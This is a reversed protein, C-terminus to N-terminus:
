SLWFPMLPLGSEAFLRTKAYDTYAYRASQPRPVAPHSLVIEEERIEAKAPYFIGDEGAIELLWDGEGRDALPQSVRVHLEAGARYKGLARPAAPASRGYLMRLAEGALREGVVRKATPHINDYEGQDILCVLASNATQDNVRQQLLRLRPWTFTDQAGDAIWMPLQVNFFPLTDDRFKARLLRILASLLEDYRETRGADEEGQYFLVGTLTLPIVRETMTEFLGGPRYPSGPGVPPNWPCLGAKENIEPWTIAPNEKKLANVANNWRDMDAQFAKEKKLYEDMTVGASKQAYERAYRQGERVSDLTDADLWCTVSTGGWYCDVIGVPVGTEKQLKMAFFYAVASMDKATGPAVPAWRANRNAQEAEENWMSRKPVNYYRVLPNSHTRICQQGEDANQVELEMNSQGGAFYVDGIAIDAYEETQERCSLLLRCGTRAKQPPLVCLFRGGRAEATDKALLRGAEDRLEATVKEGTEAMGFVRIEKGRALVAHDSFLSSCEFHPM